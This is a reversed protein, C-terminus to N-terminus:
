TVTVSNVLFKNSINLLSLVSKNTEEQIWGTIENLPYGREINM